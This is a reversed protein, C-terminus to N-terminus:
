RELAHKKWYAKAVQPIWPETWTATIDGCEHVRYAQVCGCQLCWLVVDDEFENIEIRYVEELDHENEQCRKLQEIM